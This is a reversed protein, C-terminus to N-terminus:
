GFPFEADMNLGGPNIGASPFSNYFYQSFASGSLFVVVFLTLIKKM